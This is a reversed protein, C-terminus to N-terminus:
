FNSCANTRDTSVCNTLNPRARVRAWERALVDGTQEAKDATLPGTAFCMAVPAINRDYTYTTPMDRIVDITTPITYSNVTLTGPVVNIAYGEASVFPTTATVAYTGAPSSAVATTGAAGGIGAGSDGLVLGSVQYGLPPNELGAPRSASDLTVTAVPQERYIFHNDADTVSSAGYPRNYLNPLTGSGTVGGRSEGRWTDAWVRWPGTTTISAGAPNQFLAAAVLDATGGTVNAALTLDGSLTRVVSAAAAVGSATVPSVAGSAALSSASVSGITLANTDTYALSQGASGAVVQVDNAATNLSVSGSGAGALLNAATIPAGSTQTVDTGALLAVTNAQVGANLAVAGGDAQLTLGNTASSAADLSLNGTAARIIVANGAVGTATQPAGPGTSGGGATSATGVSLGNTDAYRFDGAASGALTVVDNGTGALYVNGTGSRALLSTGSLTAAGTQTVDGSAILGLATGQVAANLALAGADAQLTVADSGSVAANVALDGTRTEISAARATIGTAGPTSALGSANVTNITVADISVANKDVYNFTNAASGAITQVDNNNDVLTVDGGSSRALLRNAVVPAGGAQTINGGALLAVTDGNVQRNLTVSGSAQLVATVAQVAANVVLAGADAQLSLDGVATTGADVSLAGTRAEIAVQNAAVGAAALPVVTGTADLASASVTGVSLADGDVYRFSGAAGGALTGANNAANTLVVSGNTSRALLQPAAIAAGTLSQSIDGNALLAVTNGQVGANLALAGADAQLSLANTGTTAANVALDGTRAQVQTTGASIGSVSVIQPLGTPTLAPASVTDITLADADTYRFTGAAGGAIAGSQNAGNGLIVDGNTSRALLRNATVPAGATQTVNGGALLAVTDGQVGVNLTLAGADAQLTTGATTVVGANIALDGTRAQVIASNGAVGTAAVAQTQNAPADVGVVAVSGVALTGANSYRFDGGASGAVTAVNNGAGTLLVNGTASRALLGTGVIGGSTSAQTIDGASLLAVKAAQVGANLAIAGGGENQLTLNYPVAVPGDVTINGAHTNSGVVVDTATLQALEAASLAFGAGRPAGLTIATAIHDSVNGAADVGGPRLAITSGSRVPGEISIADDSGDNDARLVVLQAGGDIMYASDQTGGQLDIGNGGGTAEGTVMIRGTGTVVLSAGEMVVGDGFPNAGEARGRVDITGDATTINTSALSVGTSSGSGDSTGIGVISVNGTTTTITTPTGLSSDAAFEVGDGGGAGGVGRITVDGTASTISTGEFRVSNGGTSSGRMTVAGGGAAGVQTARTDIAVNTLAIGAGSTSSAVGAAADSQGYMSVSGGNTEIRGNGLVISGIAAQTNNANSNLVVNLAGANGTSRVVFGDGVIDRNADLQFTLPTSGATRHIDVTNLITIRGATASGTTGTGITVNTGGNLADNIDGDQIVSTAVPELPLAPLTGAAAGHQISLDYPDVVWTGAKGGTSSADVTVGRLDLGAGSTEVRGGDGGNAARATLTGYTRVGAAGLVAVQGGNVPASGGSLADAAIQVTNDLGIVGSASVTASGGGTTGRASVLTDGAMLVNTGAVEVKGGTGTANDAGIQLQGGLGVLLVSGGRGEVRVNGGAATWAHPPNVPTGSGRVPSTGALIAYAPTVIVAGTSTGRIGSSGPTGLVSLKRGAGAVVDTDLMVVGQAPGITGEGLLKRVGDSNVLSDLNAGKGDILVDGGALVQAGETYIGPAIPVGPLYNTQTSTEASGVIAINGSGSFLKTVQTADSANPVLRVGSAGVGGVGTISLNGAATQLNSGAINVGTGGVISETSTDTLGKGSLALLGAGTTCSADICTSLSSGPSIDIGVAKTNAVASTYATGGTAAGGDPNSQGYFRINGGNTRINASTMTIAGGNEALPPPLSTVPGDAGPRRILALGGSDSNFDVNLPGANSEISSGSNMTIHRTANITLSSAEGAQKVLNAGNDFVVSGSDARGAGLSTGTASVVVDTRRALTDALPKVNIQSLDGASIYGGVRPPSARQNEDNLLVDTKSRLTWSGNAGSGAGAASVEPGQAIVISGSTVISGGNGQGAANASLRGIVDVGGAPADVSISGGSGATTADARLVANYELAVGNTGTVAVAGGGAAGSANLVGEGKVNTRGGTITISGGATGAILGQADLTGAIEVDGNGGGLVIEGNRAVASQARVIGAQNVVRQAVQSSDAIIAVRGGNAQLVGSALNEVSAATAQTAPDVRFTTLGDGQFDLSVKRASVLGVTGGDATITGSNSVTAGMLAITGGQASLTGLNTVGAVNGNARAFDYRGANFDADAIDLTSAVLGGTSVQSGAGFLVGAPNILFVKGNANLAGAITSLEGGMVRNLIISNAGPQLFNVVNDKGISFSGWQVIAKDSLQRVSM